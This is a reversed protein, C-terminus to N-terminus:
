SLISKLEEYLKIRQECYVFQGDFTIQGNKIRNAPCGNGCFLYYECSKCKEPVDLFLGLYKKYQPTHRILTLDIDHINGYSIDTRLYECPYLDGNPDISVWQLCSEDGSCLNLQKNNVWELIEEIERISISPDNLEMWMYLVEKMYDFWEENSISYTFDKNDFVPNYKIVKFGESIIFDFTEKCHSLGDKTVTIIVAPQIGANKLLRIGHMVKQFSGSENKYIRYKDHVAETGDLSVSVVFNNRRFFEAFDKTITTANTQITNGILQGPQKYLAMLEVAKEFFGIGALTPEGGHWSFYVKENNVLTSSILKELTDFTMVTYEKTHFPEMYCYTCALNCKAGVPKLQISFGKKNKM